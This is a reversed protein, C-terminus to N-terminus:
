DQYVHGYENPCRAAPVPTLSTLLADNWEFHCHGCSALEV